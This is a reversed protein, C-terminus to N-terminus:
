GLRHYSKHRCVLAADASGDAVLQLANQDSTCEVKTPADGTQPLPAALAPVAIRAVDSGREPKGATSDGSSSKGATSRAVPQGTTAPAPQGPKDGSRCGVLLM